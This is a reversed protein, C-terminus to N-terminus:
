SRLVFVCLVSMFVIRLCFCVIWVACCVFFRLLLLVISFCVICCFRVICVFVFCCLVCRTLVVINLVCLVCCVGCFFSINSRLSVYLIVTCFVVYSVRWVFFLLVVRVFVCDGCPIVVVCCLVVCVVGCCVCFLM